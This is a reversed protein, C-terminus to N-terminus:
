SNSNEGQTLTALYDTLLQHVIDHGHQNWHTDAFFYPSPGENIADILHPTLDLLEFDQRMALDALLNRQADTVITSDNSMTSVLSNKPLMNTITQQTESDLYNWYIEAKQPIYMLVFEGGTQKVKNAIDVIAEATLQYAITTQLENESITLNAVMTDFFALPTPPETEAIVPYPCDEVTSQTLADRIFLALHFSVLYEWPNRNQHTKEAFTMGDQQLNHFVINDTLDNGGFYALLVIQPNRPLAYYEALLKQELTGSGPLGLVLMQDSLDHWFPTTVSEAATFSDGIIAIDISDSWPEQNRFGHSDRKYMVQYPEMPLSDHPTLCSVQYLDGSFQNVEFNVSEHAPYERAGHPTDFQIGYREPYQPMRQTISQPLNLFLIQLIIEILTLTIFIIVVIQFLLKILKRM